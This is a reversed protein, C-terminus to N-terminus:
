KKAGKKRSLREINSYGGTRKEERAISEGLTMKDLEMVAFIVLREVGFDTDVVGNKGSLDLSLCSTM